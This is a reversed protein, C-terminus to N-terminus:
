FREKKNASVKAEAQPQRLREYLASLEQRQAEDQVLSILSAAEDLADRNKARNLRGAVEAYPLAPEHKPEPDAVAEIAAPAPADKGAAKRAADRLKDAASVAVPGEVPAAAEFWDGPQSMGDKLSNYVKRLNVVAAPTIAEIRRQIRHEIMERTVGIEAFKALMTKVLEPSTDAKTQMTLECQRVAADIVDGPIVGLICARLRRAGQNAVLEYVERPDELKYSGKRTYRMHPVQFVKVQRTNTEVDWAFAEVTSEAGRQEIERIGFQMNGWCQALMEAMRISPGTVNSGGKAYEYLAQEALSARTCADLIRDMAAIQDRPFRKAIVMASQVEAIERSQGAEATATTANAKASAFPNDIVATATNM